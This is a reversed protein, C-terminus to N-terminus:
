RDLERTTARRDVVVVIRVPTSGSGGPDTVDRVRYVGTEHEYFDARVSGFTVAVSGFTHIERAICASDGRAPM